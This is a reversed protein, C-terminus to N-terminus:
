FLKDEEPKQKSFISLLYFPIDILVIILNINGKSYFLLIGLLLSSVTFIHKAYNFPSYFALLSVSRIVFLVGALINLGTFADPNMGSIVNRMLLFSGVIALAFLINIFFNRM